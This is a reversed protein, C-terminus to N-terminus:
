PQIKKLETELRKIDEEKQFWREMDNYDSYFTSDQEKILNLKDEINEVGSQNKNQLFILYHYRYFMKYNDREQKVESYNVYQEPLYMLGSCILVLVGVMTLFHKTTLASDAGFVVFQRKPGNEYNDGEQKSNDLKELIAKLQLGMIQYEPSTVAARNTKVILTIGDSVRQCHEEMHKKIDELVHGNGKKPEEKQKDNKSITEIKNVMNQMLTNNRKITEELKM